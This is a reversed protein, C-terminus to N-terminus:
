LATSKIQNRFALPTTGTYKKFVTGFYNTNLYGVEESIDSILKDTHRLMDEAREMRVKTLYEIFSIKMKKKFLSSFYSVSVGLFECASLLNLEHDSYNENVYAMAKECLIMERDVNRRLISICNLCLGFLWQKLEQMSIQSFEELTDLTKELDIANEEMTRNVALILNRALNRVFYYLEYPQVCDQIRDGFLLDITYGLQAQDYVRVSARVREEWEHADFNKGSLGEKMEQYTMQFDSREYFRYDLCKQARRFSSPIGSLECYVKGIGCSVTFGLAKQVSFRIKRAIQEAKELVAEASDGEAIFVTKGHYDTFVIGCGCELAIESSVNYMIYSLMEEGDLNLAEIIEDPFDPELVSVCFFPKSLHIDLKDLEKDLKEIRDKVLLRNLIQQRELTMINNLSKASNLIEKDHNERDLAQKIEKLVAILEDATVPKVLYEWVKYKVAQRAYNFDDYGTLIVIKTQPKRQYIQESLVLGDMVPMCIDTIVAHIEKSDFLDLAKSGNECIGAVSFGLAEFDIIQGLNKRILEEDEVIMLQYMFCGWHQNEMDAMGFASLRISFDALQDVLKQM